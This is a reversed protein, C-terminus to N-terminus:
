SFGSFTRKEAEAFPHKETFAAFRKLLRKNEAIYKTRHLDFGYVVDSGLSIVKAIKSPNFLSSFAEINFQIVADDVGLIDKTQQSTFEGFTRNLHAIVPKIDHRYSVNYVEELMWPEFKGYPFELLIRDTGEYCLRSLGDILSIGREIRVEAGLKIETLPTISSMLAAFCEGRRALFDSISENHSIYHPTACALTVGASRLFGLIDASETINRAGDDMGPLFHSHFDIM